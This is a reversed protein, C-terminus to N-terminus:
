IAGRISMYEMHKESHSEEQWAAEVYMEKAMICPKKKFPKGINEEDTAAFARPLQLALDLQSGVATGMDGGELILKTSQTTGRPLGRIAGVGRM